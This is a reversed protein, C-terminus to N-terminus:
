PIWFPPQAVKGRIRCDTCEISSYTYGLVINGKSIESMPIGDSEIIYKEVENAMTKPNFFLASDIGCAYPSKPFWNQPLQSNDIFIRKQQVNTASIFGIVPEAPNTICHINGNLQSPQADFISGLQETNKKINEWFEYEEKTIAYQRVMISYRLELKEADSPITTIPAQAVVDQTLKATSGILITSSTDNTFCYYSQEAATRLRVQKAQDDVIFDSQFNAHFKWTEDYDWRYYRTNNAPDHTDVSIELKDAKALFEINDIAPNPKVAVYDSAYEKGDAMIHLRYKKTKDLNLVSGSDYKQSASNYLLQFQAGAQEEVFVTATSFPTVHTDTSVKVTKSLAIRTIDGDSITGEVVLYSNDTSVITPNYPKRCATVIVGTALLGWLIYKITKMNIM